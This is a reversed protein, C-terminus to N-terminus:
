LAAISDVFAQLRERTIFRVRDDRREKEYVLYPCFKDSFLLGKRAHSSYFGALFGNIATESLEPYSGIEHDVLALFTDVGARSAIYTGASSGPRLKYGAVSLLSTTLDSATMASRDVGHGQLAEVLDDTLRLESGLTPLEDRRTAVVGIGGASVIEAFQHLPDVEDAEVVDEDQPDSLPATGPQALDSTIVEVYEDGDRCLVSVASVDDLPLGRARRERVAEIAQSVLLDALVSDLGGAPAEVDFSVLATDGRVHFDVAELHFSALDGESSAPTAPQEAAAGKSMATTDPSSRRGLVVLVAALVVAIGVIIWVAM